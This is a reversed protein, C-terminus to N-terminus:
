ENIIEQFAKKVTEKEQKSLNHWRINKIAGELAYLMNLCGANFCKDTIRKVAEVSGIDRLDTLNQIGASNLKKELEKGINPLDSLKM